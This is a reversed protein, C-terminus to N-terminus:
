PTSQLTILTRRASARRAPRDLTRTRSRNTTLSICRMPPGQVGTPWTPIRATLTAAPFRPLYSVALERTTLRPTFPSNRWKKDKTATRMLKLLGPWAAESGLSKRSAKAQAVFSTRHHTCPLYAPDAIGRPHYYWRSRRKERHATLLDLFQADTMRPRSPVSTTSRM